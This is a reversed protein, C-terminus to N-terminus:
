KKPLALPVAPDARDRNSFAPGDCIPKAGEPLVLSLDGLRRESTSSITVTMAITQNCADFAFVAYAGQTATYELEWAQQGGPFIVTGFYGRAVGPANRLKANLALLRVHPSASPPRTARVTEM